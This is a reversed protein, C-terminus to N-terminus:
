TLGRTLNYYLAAATGEPIATFETVQPRGGVYPTVAVRTPSVVVAECRCKFGKYLLPTGSIFEDLTTM